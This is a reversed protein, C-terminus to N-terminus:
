FSQDILGYVGSLSYPHATNTVDRINDDQM